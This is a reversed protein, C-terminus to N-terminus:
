LNMHTHTHTCLLPPYFIGTHYFLCRRGDTTWIHLNRFYVHLFTFLMCVTSLIHDYWQLLNTITLHKQYYIIGNELHVIQRQKESSVVTSGWFRKPCSSLSLLRWAMQFYLNWHPCCVIGFIMLVSKYNWLCTHLHVPSMVKRNHTIKYAKTLFGCLLICLNVLQSAQFCISEVICVPLSQFVYIQIGVGACAWVYAHVRTCAHVSACM